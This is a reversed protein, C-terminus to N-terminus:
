GSLAFWFHINALDFLMEKELLQNFSPLLLYVLGIALIMAIFSIFMSESLFQNILNGRNAGVTKRISIERARKASRATALNMFNICAILLILLAVFSFVYIYVRDTGAEFEGEDMSNLHIESLPQLYYRHEGGSTFRIAMEGMYQDIQPKVYDEIFKEFYVTIADESDRDRCMIYTAVMDILWGEKEYPEIIGEM